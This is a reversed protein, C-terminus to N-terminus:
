RNLFCRFALISAAQIDDQDLLYLCQHAYTVFTMFDLVLFLEFLERSLLLQQEIARM